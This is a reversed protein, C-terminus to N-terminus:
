APRPCVTSTVGNSGFSLLFDLSFNSTLIIFASIARTSGVHFMKIHIDIEKPDVRENLFSSSRSSFKGQWLEPAAEGSSRTWRGDPKVGIKGSQRGVKVGRSDKRM